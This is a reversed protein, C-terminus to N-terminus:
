ITRKRILIHIIFGAVVLLLGTILSQNSEFSGFFPIALIVVGIIQIIIGLYRLFTKM